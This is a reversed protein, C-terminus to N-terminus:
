VLQIIARAQAHTKRTPTPSDLTHALLPKQNRTIPTQSYGLVFLQFVASPPQAVCTSCPDSPRLIRISLSEPLLSSLRSLLSEGRIDSSIWMSLFCGSPTLKFPEDRAGKPHLHSLLNRPAGPNGKSTFGPTGSFRREPPTSDPRQCFPQVHWDHSLVLTIARTIECSDPGDPSNRTDIVIGILRSPM